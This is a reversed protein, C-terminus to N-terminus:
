APDGAAAPSAGGLLRSGRALRLHTRETAAPGAAVTFDPASLPRGSARDVLV